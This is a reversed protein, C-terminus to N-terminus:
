DCRDSGSGSWQRNTSREALSVMLYLEHNRQCQLYAHLHRMRLEDGKPAPSDDDGAHEGLLLRRPRQKAGAGIGFSRRM